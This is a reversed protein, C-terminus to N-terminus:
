RYHLRKKLSKTSQAVPSTTMPTQNGSVAQSSEAAPRLFEGQIRLLRERSLSQWASKIANMMREGVRDLDWAKALRTAAVDKDVPGEVEIIQSLMRKLAPLADPDHFQL